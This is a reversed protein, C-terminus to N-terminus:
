KINSLKKSANSNPYKSKLINATNLASQRMGLQKQSVYIIFLTDAINPNKPDISISKRGQVIADKYKGSAAYAIAIYYLAVSIKNNDINKNDIIDKLNNIADEFKHQKIQKYSLQLIDDVKSNYSNTDASISEKNIDVGIQKAFSQNLQTQTDKFIQLDHQLTSINGNIQNIQNQMDDIKNLIDRVNQNSVKNGLVGVTQELQSLRLNSDAIQSRAKDDACGVFFLSASLIFITLLSKKM